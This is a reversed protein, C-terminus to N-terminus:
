ADKSDGFVDIWTLCKACLIQRKRTRAREFYEGTVTHSHYKPGKRGKPCLVVVFSGDNYWKGFGPWPVNKVSV